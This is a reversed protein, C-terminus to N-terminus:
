DAAENPAELGWISWGPRRRRAFLEVYPGACYREVRAFMEDPKVSHAQVPKMIVERVNKAVRKCNGRRGLLVFEVNHRTTLGLGVHLDSEATATIRFQRPDLSRRMKVWVFAVASYKFGWAEMLEFAQPLCPGTVWLFLHCGEKHALDRVPMECLEPITMTSYHREVDRRSGPNSMQLATWSRFKWPPDAVIARYTGRELSEFCWSM